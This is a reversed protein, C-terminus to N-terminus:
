INPAFYKNFDGSEYLVSSYAPVYEVRTKIQFLVCISVNLYYM